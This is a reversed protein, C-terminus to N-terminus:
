ITHTYLRNRVVKVNHKEPYKKQQKPPPSFKPLKVPEVKCAFMNPTSCVLCNNGM